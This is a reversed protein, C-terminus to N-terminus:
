DMLETFYVSCTEKDWKSQQKNSTSAPCQSHSLTRAESSSSWTPLYKWISHSCPSVGCLCFNWLFSSFELFEIFVFATLQFYSGILKAKLFFLWTSLWVSLKCRQAYHQSLLGMWTLSTLARLQSKHDNFVCVCVCVCVCVAVRYPLWM